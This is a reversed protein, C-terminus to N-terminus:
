GPEIGAVRMKGGVGVDGQVVHDIKGEMRSRRRGTLRDPRLGVGVFRGSECKAVGSQDIAQRKKKGPVGRMM